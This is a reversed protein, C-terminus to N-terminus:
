EQPLALAGAQLMASIEDDSYGVDLLVERGHQFFEGGRGIANVSYEGLAFVHRQAQTQPDIEELQVVAAFAKPSRRPM